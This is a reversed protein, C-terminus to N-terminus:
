YCVKFNIQPLNLSFIGWLSLYKLAQDKTPPAVQSPKPSTDMNSVSTHWKPQTQPELAM